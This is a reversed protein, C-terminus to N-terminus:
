EAGTGRLSCKEGIAPRHFFTLHRVSPETNKVTANEFGASDSLFRSYNTPCSLRCPRPRPFGLGVGLATLLDHILRAGAQGIYEPSLASGCRVARGAVAAARLSDRQGAPLDPRTRSSPPPCYFSRCLSRRDVRRIRHLGDPSPALLHHHVRCPPLLDLFCLWQLSRDTENRPKLLSLFFCYSFLHRSPLDHVHSTWSRLPIGPYIPVFSSSCGAPPGPM